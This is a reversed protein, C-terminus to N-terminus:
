DDFKILGVPVNRVSGDSTEIIATSFNGPGGEYEDYDCGFQHFVGSEVVVKEMRESGQLRKWEYITVNRM